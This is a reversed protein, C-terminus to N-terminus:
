ETEPPSVVQVSPTPAVSRNPVDREAPIEGVRDTRWGDWSANMGLLVNKPKAVSVRAVSSLRPLGARVRRRSLRVAKSWSNRGVECGVRGATRAEQLGAFGVQLVLTRVGKRDARYKRWRNM